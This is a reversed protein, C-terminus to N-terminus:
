RNKKSRFGGNWVAVCDHCKNHYDDYESRHVEGTCTGKCQKIYIKYKEPHKCKFHRYKFECMSATLLRLYQHPLPQTKNLQESPKITSNVLQQQISHQRHDNLAALCAKTHLGQSDPGHIRM